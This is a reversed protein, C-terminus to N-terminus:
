NEGAGLFDLHFATFNEVHFEADFVHGEGSVGVGLADHLEDLVALRFVDHEDMALGAFHLEELLFDPGLKIQRAEIRCVAFRGVNRRHVVNRGFDGYPQQLLFRHLKVLFASM